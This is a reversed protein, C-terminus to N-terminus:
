RVPPLTDVQLREGMLIRVTFQNERPPMTSYFGTETASPSFQYTVPESVPALRMASADPMPLRLPTATSDVWSLRRAEFYPVYLEHAGPDTVEAPRYVSLVHPGDTLEFNLEGHKVFKRQTSVETFVSAEAPSTLTMSAPVRADENIVSLRLEQLSRMRIAKPTQLPIAFRDASASQAEVLVLRDFIQLRFDPATTAPTQARATTALWTLCFLIVVLSRIMDTPNPVTGVPM